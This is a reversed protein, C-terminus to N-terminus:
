AALKTEVFRSLSGLSAFTEASIEEDEVYVDFREELATVLTVAAMSDLEPLSGFLETEPGFARGREGLQLVECLVARVEELTSM